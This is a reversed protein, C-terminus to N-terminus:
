IPSQQPRASALSAQTLEANIWEDMKSEPTAHSARPKPVSKARQMIVERDGDTESSPGLRSVDGIVASISGLVQKAAKSAEESVWSSQLPSGSSVRRDKLNRLTQERILRELHPVGEEGRIRTLSEVMKRADPDQALAAKVSSGMHENMQRAVAEQSLRDASQLRGEM